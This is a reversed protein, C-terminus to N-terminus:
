VASRGAASKNRKLAFGILGIALLAMTAPVPVPTGTSTVTISGSTLNSSLPFTLADSLDNLTLDILSTGLGITDFTLSFLTFADSQSNDLDSTGQASVEFVNVGTALLVEGQFSGGFSDLDLGNSYQVNSLSLLSTNFGVNIDFGGLSPAVGSGLGSIEVDVTVTDGLQVSQTSPSAFIEIAGAGFSAFLLATSVLGFVAKKLMMVSGKCNPIECDKHVLRNTAARKTVPQRLNRYDGQEVATSSLCLPERLQSIM